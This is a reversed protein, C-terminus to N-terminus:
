ETITITITITLRNKTPQLSEITVHYIHGSLRITTPQDTLQNITTVDIKTGVLLLGNEDM